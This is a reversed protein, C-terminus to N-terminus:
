CNWILVMQGDEAAQKYFTQLRLFLPLIYEQLNEEGEEEWYDVPLSAEDMLKFDVNKRLVDENVASLLDSYRKVKEAPNVCAPDLGASLVNARTGRGEIAKLFEDVKPKPGLDPAEFSAPDEAKFLAAFHAQEHRKLPSLLWSIVFAAKDLNLVREPPLVGNYFQALGEPAKLMHGLEDASLRGYCTTIGM